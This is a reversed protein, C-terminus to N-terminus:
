PEDVSSRRAEAILAGISGGVAAGGLVLYPWDRTSSSGSEASNAYIVFGAAAGAIAGIVVPTWSFKTRQQQLTCPRTPFPLSVSNLRACLGVSLHDNAPAVASRLLSAPAHLQWQYYSLQQARAHQGEAAQPASICFAAALIPLGKGIM